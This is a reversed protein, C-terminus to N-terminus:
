VKSCTRNMRMDNRFANMDSYATVIFESVTFFIGSIGDSNVLPTSEKQVSM